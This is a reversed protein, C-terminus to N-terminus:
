SLAHFVVIANSRAANLTGYTEYALTAPALAEGSQLFFPRGETALQFFQTETRQM